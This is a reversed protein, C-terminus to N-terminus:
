EKERGKSFSKYSGRKGKQRIAGLIHLLHFCLDLSFLIKKKKEDRKEAGQHTLRPCPHLLSAANETKVITKAKSTGRAIKLTCGSSVQVLLM